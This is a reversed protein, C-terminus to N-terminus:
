TSSGHLPLIRSHSPGFEIQCRDSHAAAAATPEILTYCTHRDTWGERGEERGRERQVILGDTQGNNCCEVWDSRGLQGHLLLLLLAPRTVDLLWTPPWRSLVATTWGPWTQLVCAAWGPPRVRVTAPRKSIILLACLTRWLCPAHWRHVLLLRPGRACSQCHICQVLKYSTANVRYSEQKM